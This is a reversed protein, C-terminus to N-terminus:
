LGYLLGLALDGQGGLLASCSAIDEQLGSSLPKPNLTRVQRVSDNHTNLSVVVM